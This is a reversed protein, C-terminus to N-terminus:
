EVPPRAPVGIGKVGLLRVVEKAAKASLEENEDACYYGHLLESLGSTAGDSTVDGWYEKFIICTYNDANVIRYDVRGVKNGTSRKSDFSLKRGEFFDWMKMVKKLSGETRYHFGGLLQGLYIGSLMKRSSIDYWESVEQRTSHDATVRAYSRRVKGNLTPAYFVIRREDEGIAAWDPVHLAQARAGLSMVAAMAFLIGLLPSLRHRDPTERIGGAIPHSVSVM